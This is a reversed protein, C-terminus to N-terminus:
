AKMKREIYTFLKGKRNTYLSPRCFRGDLTSDDAFESVVWVYRIKRGKRVKMPVLFAGSTYIEPQTEALCVNDLLEEDSL